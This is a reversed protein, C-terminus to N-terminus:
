PNSDGASILASGGSRRGVVVDAADYLVEFEGGPGVLDLLLQQQEPGVHNRDIVIYEITSPDPLRYTDNNGWYAPM